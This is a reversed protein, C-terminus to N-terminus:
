SGGGAEPCTGTEVESTDAPNGVLDDTGDMEARVKYNYDNATYGANTMYTSSSGRGCDDMCNDAEDISLNDDSESFSGGNISRHLCIHHDGDNLGAHEWNVCHNEKGSDAGDEDTECATCTIYVFPEAAELCTQWAAGDFVEATVDVEQWAAGDYVYLTTITQWASGDFVELSVAM